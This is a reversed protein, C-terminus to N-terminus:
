PFFVLMKMIMLKTHVFYISYSAVFVDIKIHVVLLFLIHLSFEIIMIYSLIYITKKMGGYTFVRM